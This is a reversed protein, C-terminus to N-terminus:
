PLGAIAIALSPLSLESGWLSDSDVVRPIDEDGVLVVVLHPEDKGRVPGYGRHRALPLPAVAVAVGVLGKEVPWFIHRQARVPLDVRCVSHIVNDAPESITRSTHTHKYAHTVM